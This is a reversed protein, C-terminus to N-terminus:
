DVRYEEPLFLMFDNDEGVVHCDACFQMTDSNRGGTIGAVSGDAMVMAYRWNGTEENFGEMMKEMMFLPGVAVKGDPQVVFSPKALISGVPAERAEEYQGYVDEAVSNAYNHVLREGHTASLYGITSFRKWGAWEDAGPVEDGAAAYAESLAEVICDDVAM